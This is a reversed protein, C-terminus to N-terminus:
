NVIINVSSSYSRSDLIINVRIINTGKQLKIDILSPNNISKSFEFYNKSVGNNEVTWYIDAIKTSDNAWEIQNIVPTASLKYSDSNTIYEYNIQATINRDASIDGAEQTGTNIYYLGGGTLAILGMFAIMALPKNLFGYKPTTLANIKRKQLITITVLCIIITLMLAALMYNGYQQIFESKM